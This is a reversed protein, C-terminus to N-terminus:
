GLLMTGKSRAALGKDFTVLTLGAAEAFAEM